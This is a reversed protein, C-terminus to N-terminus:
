SMANPLGTQTSYGREVEDVAAALASVSDTADRVRSIATSRSQGTVESLHAVAAVLGDLQADLAAIDADCAAVEQSVAKRAAVSGAEKGLAVLQARRELHRRRDEYAQRAAAVASAGARKSARTPMSRVLARLRDLEDQSEPVDVAFAGRDIERVAHHLRWARRATAILPPVTGAEIITAGLVADGGGFFAPIILAALAGLGASIWAAANRSRAVERRVDVGSSRALAGEVAVDRRAKQRRETSSVRRQKPAM